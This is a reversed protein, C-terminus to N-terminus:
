QLLSVGSRDGIESEAGALSVTQIQMAPINQIPSNGFVTSFRALSAAFTKFYVSMPFKPLAMEGASRAKNGASFMEAGVPVAGIGFPIAASGARFIIEGTRGAKSGAPVSETGVPIM